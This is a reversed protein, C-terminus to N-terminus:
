TAQHNGHKNRELSNSENAVIQIADQVADRVLDWAQDDTECLGKKWAWTSHIAEWVSDPMDSDDPFLNSWEGEADGRTFITGAWGFKRRLDYFVTLAESEQLDTMCEKITDYAILSQENM